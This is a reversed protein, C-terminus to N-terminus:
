SALGMRGFGLLWEINHILDEPDEPRSLLIGARHQCLNQINWIVNRLIEEILGVAHNNEM